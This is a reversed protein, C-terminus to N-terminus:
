AAPNVPSLLQAQLGCFNEIMWAMAAETSGCWEYINMGSQTAPPRHLNETMWIVTTRLSSKRSTVPRRKNKIKLINRKLIKLDPRHPQGPFLSSQGATGRGIFVSSPFTTTDLYHVKYFDLLAPLNEFEQDGIKFRWRPLSNVIYHSIRANLFTRHLRGQAQDSTDFNRGSPGLSSLPSPSSM